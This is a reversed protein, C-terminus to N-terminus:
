MLFGCQHDGTIKDVYQTLKSLLINSPIEYTTPILSTGRYNSCDGKDGNKYIYEV